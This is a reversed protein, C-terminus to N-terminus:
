ASGAEELQIFLLWRSKLKGLFHFYLFDHSCFGTGGQFDVKEGEGEVPTM